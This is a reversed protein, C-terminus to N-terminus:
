GNLYDIIGNPLIVNLAPLNSLSGAILDRDATATPGLLLSVM